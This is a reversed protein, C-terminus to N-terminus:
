VVSALFLQLALWGLAMTVLVLLSSVAVKVTRSTHSRPHTDAASVRISDHMTM